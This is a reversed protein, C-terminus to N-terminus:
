RQEEAAYGLSYCYQEIRRAERDERRIEITGFNMRSTFIGDSENHRLQKAFDYAVDPEQGGIQANEVPRLKLNSVPKRM